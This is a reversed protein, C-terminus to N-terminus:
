SAKTQAKYSSNALPTHTSTVAEVRLRVSVEKKKKKKKSARPRCQQEHAKELQLSCPSRKTMTCAERQLACARSM